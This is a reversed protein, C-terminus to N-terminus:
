RWPLRGLVVWGSGAQQAGPEPTGPRDPGSRPRKPRVHLRLRSWERGYRRLRHLQPPPTPKELRSLFLQLQPQHHNPQIPPLQMSSNPLLCFKIITHQVHVHPSNESPQRNRFHLVWRIKSETSAVLFRCPDPVRYEESPESQYISCNSLWIFRSDLRVGSTIRVQSYAILMRSHDRKLPTFCRVTRPLTSHLILSLRSWHGRDLLLYRMFPFM